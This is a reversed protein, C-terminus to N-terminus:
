AISLPKNLSTRAKRAIWWQSLSHLQATPSLCCRSLDVTPVTDVRVWYSIFTSAIMVLVGAMMVVQLGFWDILSGMCVAVMFQALFTAMGM